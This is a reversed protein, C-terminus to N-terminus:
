RRGHRRRKRCIRQDQSLNGGDCDIFVRWTGLNVAKAPIGLALALFPLLLMMAVEVLRFHFNAWARNRESAPKQADGGIHV